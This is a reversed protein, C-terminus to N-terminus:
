NRRGYVRIGWGSHPGDVASAGTVVLNKGPVDYVRAFYTQDFSFLAPGNNFSVNFSDIPFSDVTILFRATLSGCSLCFGMLGVVRISNYGSVDITASNQEATSELLLSTDLLLDTTDNSTTQVKATGNMTVPVPNSATNTVQVSGTVSGSITGTVPVPNATTNMVQVPQSPGPTSNPPAASVLGSISTAAIIAAFVTRLNM